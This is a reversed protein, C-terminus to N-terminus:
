GRERSRVAPQKEIRQYGRGGEARRGRERSVDTSGRAVFKFKGSNRKFRKHDTDLFRPDEVTYGVLPTEAGLKRLRVLETRMSFRGFRVPGPFGDVKGYGHGVM